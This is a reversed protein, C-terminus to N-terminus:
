ELTIKAIAKKLTDFKFNFGTSRIKNSSVSVGHLLLDAMEGFLLKILFAPIPPLWIRRGISGALVEMMERNTTNGTATNYTGEIQNELVHAFMNALDEIHIWQIIQKGSGVPAGVGWKIPQLMKSAAGGNSSLVFAIRLKAVNVENEFVAASSEWKKVLESIFDSGYSDKETYPEIRKSFGYCSIGSASIYQKLRPMKSRLEYLFEAPKIRSNLLEEKRTRSWRKDAIGTGCLNILVETESIKSADIRKREPDWHVIDTREAKRSLIRVSHGRMKLVKILEKGIFGTGGAILIKLSNTNLFSYDEM